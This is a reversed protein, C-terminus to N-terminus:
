SVAFFSKGLDHHVPYFVSTKSGASLAHFDVKREAEAGDGHTQTNTPM